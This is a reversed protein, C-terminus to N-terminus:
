GHVSEDERLGPQAALTAGISEVADRLLERYVMPDGESEVPTGPPPDSPHNGRQWNMSCKTASPRLKGAM